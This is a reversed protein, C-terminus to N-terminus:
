ARTELAEGQWGSRRGRDERLKEALGWLLRGEKALGPMLDAQVQQAGGVNFRGGDALSGAISLPNYGGFVVRFVAKDWREMRPQFRGTERLFEFLPVSVLLDRKMRTAYNQVFLNILGEVARVDGFQHALGTKASIATLRIRRPSKRRSFAM